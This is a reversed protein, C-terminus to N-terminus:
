PSVSGQRFDIARLDTGDTNVLYYKSEEHTRFLGSRSDKRFIIQSGDMSFHPHYVYQEKYRLVHTANSELDTIFIAGDDRYVSFLLKQGNPSLNPDL